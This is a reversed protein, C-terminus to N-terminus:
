RSFAAAGRGSDRGRRQVTSQPPLVVRLEGGCLAGARDPIFAPHRSRHNQRGLRPARRFRRRFRRDARDSPRCTLYYYSIHGRLPLVPCLLIGFWALGFLPLLRKRWASCGAYAFMAATFFIRLSRALWAASPHFNVWDLAGAGMELLNWRLPWSPTSICPILAAVQKPVLALHLALFLLSAGFLPLTARWYKRAELLAYLGVIAPYVIMSEM